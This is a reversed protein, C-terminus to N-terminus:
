HTIELFYPPPRVGRDQAGRSGGSIIILMLVIGVPSFETQSRHRARQARSALDTACQVDVGYAYPTYIPGICRYAYVQQM